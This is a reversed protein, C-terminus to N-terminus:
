GICVRACGLNCSSGVCFEVSLAGCACGPNCSSGVCFEVNLAGCACGPNCSSGVFFDVSSAGRLVMISVALVPIISFRHTLNHLM